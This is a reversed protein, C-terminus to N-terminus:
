RRRSLHVIAEILREVEEHTNYIAFSPRVTSELGFHRLSPQACHHGTRVAIGRRDLEKGVMETTYGDLTFSVVGIKKTAHGYIAVGRIGKLERTAHELLAHEHAEVSIPDFQRLYQLAAGLGVADGISPTGAEFKAPADSYITEDFSVRRIMNGGGQWPPLVDHLQPHVYVVGIGTPAFIKHGSFVLFDCGIAQVDVPMHAISQAADIVVRAGHHHAMQTM